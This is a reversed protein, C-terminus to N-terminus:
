TKLDEIVDAPVNHIKDLHKWLTIVKDAPMGDVWFEECFCRCDVIGRQLRQLKQEPAGEKATTGM